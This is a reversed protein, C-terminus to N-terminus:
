IQQQLNFDQQRFKPIGRTAGYKSFLTVLLAKPLQRPAENFTKSLAAVAFANLGYACAATAAQEKREVYASSFVQMAM